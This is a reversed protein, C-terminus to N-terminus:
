NTKSIRVLKSSGDALEVHLLYMGAELSSLNIEKEISKRIVERGNLDLVRVSFAQNLGDLSIINRTPNPYVKIGDLDKTGLTLQDVAFVFTDSVTGGFGDDATVTITSEGIGQQTVIIQDSEGVSVTVVTEDSSTATITLDQGEPDVFVGATSIEVSNFGITESQDEIEIEVTPAMNEAVSVTVVWDQTTQRDEATITYTVPSTFDQPGEPSISAGDSITISPSLSTVDSGFLMELTVTHNEDDISADSVSGVQDYATIDTADNSCDSSFIIHEDVDTWNTESYEVDDVTVCSLTPNNLINFTTIVENAGNALNLSELTPINDAYFNFILPNNTIDLTTIATSSVRLQTIKTNASVDVVTLDSSRADFVSLDPNQSLDVSTVPVSLMELFTLKPNNTVDVSSLDMGSIRLDWLDPQNSVDVTTIPNFKPIYRTLKTHLSIDMTSINNEHILLEEILLNNSIDLADLNNESVHLITLNPNNSLDISEIQNVNVELRTLNPANTVDVETLNNIWAVLGTLGTFAEIGTLENIGMNQVFLTGTFAAAEEFTIRGDDTTNISGQALLYNEFTEDPIYVRDCDISFRVGEDIAGSWNDEAYAVADVNVCSLSNNNLNIVTIGTNNGNRLDISVLESSNATVELLNPSASVDLSTLDTNAVNLYRLATNQSLDLSSITNDFGYFIQLDPQNTIDVVSLNNSGVTLETLLTNASVDITSLQNYSMKLTRLNTNNSVDISGIQNSQLNVFTLATNTTIDIEMLENNPLILNRLNPHNSAEFATIDHNIMTIVELNIFAEVGTLDAVVGQTGSNVQITGTFAEAEGYSIEADENTNISLNGVLAAKFNEDPIYVPDDITCYTDSFTVGEDIDTWESTSYSVDDVQVCTLNNNRIRFNATPTKAVILENAGNQMNLSTLQNNQAWVVRLQPNHSLDLTTISTSNVYLERLKPNNSVDLEQVSSSACSLEMLNVLQDVYLEEIDNNSVNLNILATNDNIDIFSLDNNHLYFSTLNPNQSVDVTPGINNSFASILQLDPQNSIDLSTLNNLSLNIFTLQTNASLDVEDIQNNYAELETLNIFAELGELSVIETSNASLKGTFAEAELYTIEDDDTTNIAPNALLVSKFNEDPINVPDNPDCYTDSFNLGADIDTWETDSYEADDVLVCSLNENGTLIFTTIINNSGNRLNLTQLDNNPASFVYLEPHISLDLETLNNDDVVLRELLLNNTLDLESVDNSNLFLANLLPLDSVDISTLNNTQFELHTLKSNEAPFIVVGLQNTFAQLTYIETNTSLDLSTLSNRDCRLIELATNASVDLDTLNNQSIILAYLSTFVELGTADEIGLNKVSITGTFAQAEGYSIKNDENANISNNGVLAAKFNTDPIYVPDTLDCYKTPTVPVDFYTDWTSVYDPDDVSICTLNPVNSIRVQGFPMNANNGNALKLTTLQSNNQAKIETLNFNNTLDLSTLQTNQVDLYDLDPLMSVDLSSITTYGGSVRQLKTNNSLDISSLNGNSGFNIIELDTLASVDLANLYFIGGAQLETIKTNQSLDVSTFLNGNLVLYDLETLMTLDVSTLDNGQLLLTTLSTNSSLDVTSIDNAGVNLNTLNIFYEIGELGTIGMNFVNLETLAEAESFSIEDDGNTDIVPDHAFLADAFNEDPFSIFDHTTFTWDTNQTFGGFSTNTAVDTIVGANMIIYYSQDQDFEDHSVTLTSGSINGADLAILQHLTGGSRYIAIQKTVGNIGLQISQDFTLVLNEDPDVLTAQHNPVQGQMVPAALSNNAWGRQVVVLLATTLFFLIWIVKRSISNRNSTFSHKM